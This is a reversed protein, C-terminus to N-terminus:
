NPAAQAKAKKEAEDLLSPVANGNESSLAAMIKSSLDRWEQRAHPEYALPAFLKKAEALRKERLMERFADLRVREDQPALTVAYLLAEVANTTPQEGAAVYTEYFLALPEADETDIKNAQTFWSRVKAWNAHQPDKKALELQARGKYILAHIDKPDAALARDAAADAAAFNRADQEAEALVSQVFGDNPYSAAIRRADA